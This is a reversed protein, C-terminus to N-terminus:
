FKTKVMIKFYQDSQKTVKLAVSFSVDNESEAHFTAGLVYIEVSKTLGFNKVLKAGWKPVLHFCFFCCFPLPQHLVIQCVLIRNRPSEITKQIKSIPKGTESIHSNVKLVRIRAWGKNQKDTYRFDPDRQLLWSQKRSKFFNVAVHLTNKLTWDYAQENNQEQHNSSAGIHDSATVLKAFESWSNRIGLLLEECFM